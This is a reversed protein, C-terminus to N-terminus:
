KPDLEYSGLKKRVDLMLMYNELSIGDFVSNCTSFIYGGGPMGSKLAYEASKIIGQKDGIQMKTSDVNGMIATRGNILKKIKAIDMGALPDISHIAHPKCDVLMELIPLINGDTHKIVYAGAKKLEETQRKLFPYIFQEFNKPSLFPGQNFCYDSCNYMVSAGADIMQKMQDIAWHTYKDAYSILEEPEDIMRYSFEVIGDGDPISYSADIGASVLIQDGAEKHITNIVYLEDELAPYYRNGPTYGPTPTPHVTIASYDLMQATQIYVEINHNLAKKKETGSLKELEKGLILKKGTLQENLEFDIEMTPVFDPIRLELAEIARQKPTM